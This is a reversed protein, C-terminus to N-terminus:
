KIVMFKVDKSVKTVRPEFGFCMVFQIKLVARTNEKTIREGM